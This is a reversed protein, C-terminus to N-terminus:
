QQQGAGDGTVSVGYSIDTMYQYFEQKKAEDTVVRTYGNASTAPVLRLATNEGDWDVELLATRPISSGFVLNGLSYVIPKGKYYELGQLVHPHAGVVLDAGADIYQQGLARQYDQPREDREIGWHVYVVLYDCRERLARIQEVLAAPDYTTLMGPRTSSASWSGEPIVRSAGLFGITKGKATLIVPAKAEDLNRGAGVHPIGAGDLTDLTDVLADTGFDLAHNNALTVGDIGMENLISVKQPQLRFTYQKDAAATGRDSFPFEQNVMFIDSNGIVERLGDDLVGTIDGTKNYANLVHDSLLVDGGFVLRVTEDQTEDAEFAAQGATDDGGTGPSDAPGGGQGEQGSGAGTGQEGQGFGAGGPANQGGAAAASAGEPAGTGDKGAAAQTEVAQYSHGAGHWVMYGIVGALAIGLVAALAAAWGTRNM